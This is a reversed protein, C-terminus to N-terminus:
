LLQQPQGALTPRNRQMNDLYGRVFKYVFASSTGMLAGEQRTCSQPEPVLAGALNFM